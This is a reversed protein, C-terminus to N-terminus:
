SLYCLFIFMYNMCLGSTMIYDSSVHIRMDDDVPYSGLLADNNDLDCVLKDDKGFVQLKMSTAPAGTVLEM